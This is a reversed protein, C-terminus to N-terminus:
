LRKFLSSDNLSFSQLRKLRSFDNEEFFISNEDVLNDGETGFVGDVGFSYDKDLHQSPRMWNMITDFKKNIEEYKDSLKEVNHLLQRLMDDHDCSARHSCPPRRSTPISHQHVRATGSSQMQPDDLVEAIDHSNPTLTSKWRCMRPLENVTLRTRYMNAIQPISEFAWVQQSLPAIPTVVQTKGLRSELDVEYDRHKLPKWQVPPGRM